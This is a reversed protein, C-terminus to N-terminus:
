RRPFGPYVRLEIRDRVLSPVIVGSSSLAVEHVFMVDVPHRSNGRVFPALTSYTVGIAGFQATGSPTRLTEGDATVYRDGGLQRLSWSASVGLKEGLNLRPAVELDVRRGLSREASVLRGEFFRDPVDFGPVRVVAQDPRPLTGRATVSVWFWRRWVLDATTRLLLASVGDGTALAFPQNVQASSATGFRWGASALVRVGSLGSTLRAAQDTRWRDFLLVRAELDLDGMGARFARDLTDANLGFASDQAIQQLGTTGYVFVAGAHTRPVNTAGYTSFADSLSALSTGIANHADSGAVPVVPAGPAGAAGYVTRWADAFGRARALLASAAAPDANIADCVAGTGGDACAAIDSTLSGIAADLQTLVQGNTNAGAGGLAPNRGVNAGTGERNLVLQADHVVEVYPVRVGLSVRRTLGVEAQLLTSARRVAGRAELAGLSLTFDGGTLAGIGTEAAQLAPLQAVGLSPTALGGLLPGTEGTGLLRRDWQDWQAGLSLRWGRAPLPVADEGVGAVAQAAAPVAAASLM